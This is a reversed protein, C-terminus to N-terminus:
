TPYNMRITYTVQKSDGPNIVIPEELVTHDLLVVAMNSTSTGKFVKGLTGVESISLPESGTNTIGHTVVVGMCDANRTISVDGQACSFGDTIISELNYDDPTAPTTGTGFIVGEGNADKRAQYMNQFLREYGLNSSNWYIDCVTGDSTVIANELTKFMFRELIINYFNKTLM